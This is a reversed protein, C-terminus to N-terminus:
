RTRAAVHGGSHLWGYTDGKTSKPNRVTIINGSVKEEIM